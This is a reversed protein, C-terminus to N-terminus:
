CNTIKKLKAIQNSFLYSDLFKFCILADTSCIAINGFLM